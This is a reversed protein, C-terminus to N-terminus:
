FDMRLVRVTNGDLKVLDSIEAGCVAYVEQGKTVLPYFDREREPIKKDIFYEKLKKKGGGFKFFVDGEKRKRIVCGEPFKDADAYLAGGFHAPLPVQEIRLIRNGFLFEGEGFPYEPLEAKDARYVAIKGGDKVATLGFPLSVKKGNDAKELSFLAPLAASTYDKERGLKRIALFVCRRFVPAPLGVPIYAENGRFSIEKAALATLYDDDERAARSFDYIRKQYQPFMREAPALVEHRIFNRAYSIDDNTEDNRYALEREQLYDLIEGKGIGLMPRVIQKNESVFVCGRIGGAGAGATGRFLNFLVSEANDGAHHATFVFDARDESLIERFIRLREARAREEIGEGALAATEPVRVEYFLLPVGASACLDRVFDSDARSSEGRIGHEVNVASVTIGYEGAHALLYDFLAVSDGGGSLAVCVRKNRYPTLDIYM